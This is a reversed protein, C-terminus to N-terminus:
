PTWANPAGHRHPIEIEAGMAVVRTGEIEGRQSSTTREISDHDFALLEGREIERRKGSSREAPEVEERVVRAGLEIERGARNM